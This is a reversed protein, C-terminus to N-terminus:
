LHSDRDSGKEAEVQPSGNLAARAKRLDGVTVTNDSYQIGATRRGSLSAVEDLIPIVDDPSAIFVGDSDPVYDPWLLAEKAFPELAERLARAEERATNLASLSLGHRRVGHLVAPPADMDVGLADVLACYDRAMLERTDAFDRFDAKTAELQAVAKDARAREYRAEESLRAIEAAACELLGPCAAAHDTATPFARIYNARRELREILAAREDSFLKM